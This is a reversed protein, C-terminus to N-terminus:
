LIGELEAADRLFLVETREFGENVANRQALYRFTDQEAPTANGYVVVKWLDHRGYRLTHHMQRGRYTSLPTSTGIARDLVNKVNASYGGYLNKTVIVMEDAQGILRCVQQLTDRMFCEAPHKTWCGFCGQCPAFKGNASIVRDCRAAISEDYPSGLDHLIIKM